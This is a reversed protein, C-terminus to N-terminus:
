EIVEDARDVLDHGPKTRRFASTDHLDDLFQPRCAHCDQQDLV